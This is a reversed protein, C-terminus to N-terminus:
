KKIYRPISAVVYIGAIGIFTYLVRVVGPISGFIAEIVDFEFVGILGWNIAGILVLVLAVRDLANMKM